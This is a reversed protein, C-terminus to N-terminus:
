SRRSRGSQWRESRSLLLINKRIVFRKKKFIFLLHEFFFTIFITKRFSIESNLTGIYFNESVISKVPIKLINQINLNKPSLKLQIFLNKLCKDILIKVM